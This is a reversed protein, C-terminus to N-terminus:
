VQKGSLCSEPEKLIFTTQSCVDPIHTHACTHTYTHTTHEHMHTHVPVDTFMHPSQYQADEEDKKKPCPGKSDRFTVSQGILGM